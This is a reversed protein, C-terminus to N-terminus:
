GALPIGCVKRLLAVIGWFRSSGWLERYNDLGVWTEGGLDADTLSLRLTELLPWAVIVGIFLLAPLILGWAFWGESLRRTPRVPALRLGAATAVDAM